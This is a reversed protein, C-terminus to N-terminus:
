GASSLRKILESKLIRINKNKIEIIKEHKLQLLIKNTSELSISALDALDKRLISELFDTGDFKSDSLYLLTSVFKGHNNRTSLILASRTLLVM